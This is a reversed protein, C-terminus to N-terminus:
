IFSAAMKYISKPTKYPISQHLRELELERKEEQKLKIQRMLNGSILYKNTTPSFVFQKFHLM